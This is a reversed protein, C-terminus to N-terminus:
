RRGVKKVPRSAPAAPRRNRTSAAVPKKGKKFRTSAELMEEEGEPEVSFEEGAVEFTIVDADPEASVTVDEGTVEAILQAVDEAEFLLETVEPAVETEAKIPRVTKKQIVM